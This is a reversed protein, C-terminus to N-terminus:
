NRQEWQKLRWFFFLQNQGFCSSCVVLDCTSFSWSWRKFPLSKSCAAKCAAAKATASSVAGPVCCKKTSADLYHRYFSACNVYDSWTMQSYLFIFSWIWLLLWRHKPHAHQCMSGMRLGSCLSCSSGATCRTEQREAAQFYDVQPGHCSCKSAAQDLWNRERQLGFGDSRWFISCVHDTELCCKQLDRELCRKSRNWVNPTPNQM